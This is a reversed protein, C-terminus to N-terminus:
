RKTECFGKRKKRVSKFFRKLINVALKEELGGVIKLNKKYLEHKTAEQLGSGFEKCTAGFYLNKIRSLKILGFCMLCPELTVYISCDDLRWTGLKKCAKKIAVVEAHQCQCLKKEIKNYGRSLVVGQSDVVVAGVPVEGKKYALEAQNLAKKMIFLDKKEFM